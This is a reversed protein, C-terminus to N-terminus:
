KFSFRRSIFGRGFCAQSTRFIICKPIPSNSSVILFRVSKSSVFCSILSAYLFRPLYFDRCALRTSPGALSMTLQGQHRRRGRCFVLQYDHFIHRHQTIIRNIRL